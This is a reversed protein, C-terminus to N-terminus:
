KQGAQGSAHKFSMLGNQGKSAFEIPRQVGEGAPFCLRLTGEKIEYIGEVKQGTPKGAEEALLDIGKPRTEPHLVVRARGVLKDAEYIALKDGEFVYRGKAVFDAPASQGGIEFNTGLWSGQLAQIEAKALTAADGPDQLGVLLLGQMLIALM